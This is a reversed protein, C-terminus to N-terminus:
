AAQAVARMWRDMKAELVALPLSGSGVVQDHFDPLSFRAGLMQRARDRLEEIKIRGIAYGLAQGPSVMYREIQVRSAREGFGTQEHFYAIAQERTWGKAHMGTDVVLRVARMMAMGLHGLHANPDNYLGLDYGLTEAYLAWGEGYANYFYFRQLKTVPMEQALAVQYHHGPQGEHLFLSAMRTTAYDAPDTIVAYYIGPRSGDLAPNAYHDSATNRTLEPEPRIELAAKPARGFLSPLQAAIVRNLQAYADLVQQETKFPRAEPRKDHWVLFDALSGQYGYQAQVEAMKGRLRQVERLGLAHIEEPSLSTSTNCKVWQEYWARGDPLASWGTSTRAHPLVDRQMVEALRALAPTLQREVVQRYAKALRTRDAEAFGQPLQHIPAYYPSKDAAAPALERLMPLLRELIAKPHAIGRKVGERLNTVAQECWAPLMRLRALHHEYDAVTAFASLANEVATALQFPAKGALQDLPLLHDPLRMLALQDNAHYALVDYAILDAEALQRREIRRLEALTKGHLAAMRARHAPAIEIAIRSAQAPTAVGLQSAWFPEADLLADFYRDALAALRAAAATKPSTAAKSATAAAWAPGAFAAGSACAALLLQRRGPIEPTKFM